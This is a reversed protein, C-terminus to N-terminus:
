HLAKIISRASHFTNDEKFFCFRVFDEGLYKHEKSYFASMPILGLKHHSAKESCLWRVFQYDAPEDLTMQGVHHKLKTYDAVMFYGGEPVVPEFAGELLIEALLDRKPQLIRPMELFYCDLTPYLKLQNEFCSAVAAQIATNCTYVCNQHIGRLPIMLHSPCIAWGTKWGTLSFTKGVSGITITRDWMDPLSAAFYSSCNFNFVLLAWGFRIMESNEYILWEYVEDSIVVLNHRKVIDAIAELERRTYVKGTPNMPNNLYLLKTKETVVSELEQVDLVYDSSSMRDGEKTKLRLPVFVPKGGAMRVQPEYCDFYPEIIIAKLLDAGSQKSDSARVEDGNNIFAFASYFLAQYAGPTILVENMPDVRHGLLSSYFRALVEVLPVYGFGRTYQNLRYDSSLAVKSLENTFTSPPCFDTFGQGLNLAKHKMVLGVFEVWVNEENGKLRDSPLVDSMYLIYIIFSHISPNPVEYRCYYNRLMLLCNPGFGGKRGGGFGRMKGRRGAKRKLGGKRKGKRRRKRAKKGKQKKQKGGKGGGGEGGAGEDGAGGGEGGEGFDEEEDDPLGVGWAETNVDENDEGLYVQSPYGYCPFFWGPAIGPHRKDKITDLMLTYWSQVSTFFMRWSIFVILVCCTVGAWFTSSRKLFTTFHRILMIFCGNPHFGPNETLYYTIRVGLSNAYACTLESTNRLCCSWPVYCMTMGNCTSNHWPQNSQAAVEKTLNLLKLPPLVWDSWHSLGCCELAYQMEDVRIRNITSANDRGGYMSMTTIMGLWLESQLEDVAFFNALFTAISAGLMAATFFDGFLSAAKIKSPSWRQSADTNRFACYCSYASWCFLAAAMYVNYKFAKRTYFSPKKGLDIFYFIHEKFQKSHDYAMLGYGFAFCVTFFCSITIVHSIVHRATESLFLVCLVMRNSKVVKFPLHVKRAVYRFAFSSFLTAKAKRARIKRIYFELEHGELIYGDARGVQGPRSAIVALLRGSTFQDELAPEVKAHLQRAAYKKEARESRKVNLLVEEQETLKAGKRRGLPLAYHSEYWQRFPSADVVVVANKVLTKTRVLENSSANYVVDMIRTKRTCGESGWSFNGTELRLARFKRNGGRVRITHVRKPGIRTNAPPRGLQYKRKKRSRTRKGGTKRRKHWHDKTIGSSLEFYSAISNVIPLLCKGM